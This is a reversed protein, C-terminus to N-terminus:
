VSNRQGLLEEVEVLAMGPRIRRVSDETLGPTWLLRDTPLLPGVILGGGGLWLCVRRSM